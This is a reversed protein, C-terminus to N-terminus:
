DVFLYENTNILFRCANPLGHKEVYQTVIKHEEDTPPRYFLLRYAETVQSSPDNHTGQIRNAIQQCQFLVFKDNLTAFAQLATLSSSRKPSLQSGDPCDLANLFPDPITRFLFRYISRRNNVADSASFNQYDVNPTM